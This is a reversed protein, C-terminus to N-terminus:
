DPNRRDLPLDKPTGHNPASDLGYWDITSQSGLQEISSRELTWADTNTLELELAGSKPLPDDSPRDISWHEHAFSARALFVLLSVGMFGVHTLHKSTM